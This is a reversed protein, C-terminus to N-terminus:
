SKERDKCLCPRQELLLKMTEMAKTNNVIVELSRNELVDLRGDTRSERKFSQFVFVVVLAAFGGQVCLAIVQLDAM